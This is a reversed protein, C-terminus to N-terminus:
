FINICYVLVALIGFIYLGVSQKNPTEKLAWFWEALHGEYKAEMLRYLSNALVSIVLARVFIQRTSSVVFITFGAFIVQFLASNLTKDPIEGKHVQLFGAANAFDKHKIFASFTKSFNTEPELFFAHIIYELDLFFTGVLSGAFVLGIDVAERTVSVALLAIALTLSILFPVRYYHLLRKNM